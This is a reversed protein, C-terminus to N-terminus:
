KVRKYEDGDGLLTDTKKRHSIVLEGFSGRQIRLVNQGKDYTAMVVEGRHSTLIFQNGEKQITTTDRPNKINQWQGIFEKGNNGACAQLPLITTVLIIKALVNSHAIRM